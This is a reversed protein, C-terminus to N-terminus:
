AVLGVLFSWIPQLFGLWLGIVVLAVYAAVIATAQLMESKTM